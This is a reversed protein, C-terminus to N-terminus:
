SDTTLTHKACGLTLAYKKKCSLTRTYNNDRANVYVLDCLCKISTCITKQSLMEQYNLRKIFLKQLTFGPLLNLIVGSNRERMIGIYQHNLSTMKFHYPVM